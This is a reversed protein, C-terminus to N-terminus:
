LNKIWKSQDINNFMYQQTRHKIHYSSNSGFLWNVRLISIVISKLMIFKDKDAKSAIKFNIKLAFVINFVRSFIDVFIFNLSIIIFNLGHLHNNNDMAETIKSILFFFLFQCTGHNFRKCSYATHHHSLRLWLPASDPSWYHVRDVPVTLPSGFWLGKRLLIM